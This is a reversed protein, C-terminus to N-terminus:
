FKGRTTKGKKWICQYYYTQNPKLNELGIQHLTQPEDDVSSQTLIRPNTSFRVKGITALETEWLITITTLQADQLYPGRVLDNALLPLASLFIFGLIIGTIKRM